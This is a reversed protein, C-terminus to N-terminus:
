VHNPEKPQTQVLQSEAENLLINADCFINRIPSTPTAAILYELKTKVEYLQRWLEVKKKETFGTNM